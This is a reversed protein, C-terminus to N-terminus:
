RDWLRDDEGVLDARARRVAQGFESNHTKECTAFGLHWGGAGVDYLRIAVARLPHIYTRQLGTTAKVRLNCREASASQERDAPEYRELVSRNDLSM